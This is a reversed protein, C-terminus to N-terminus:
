YNPLLALFSFRNGTELDMVQGAMLPWFM